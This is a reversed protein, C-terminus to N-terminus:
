ADGKVIALLRKRRVESVTAAMCTSSRQVATRGQRPTWGASLKLHGAAAGWLSTNRTLGVAATVQVATRWRQSLLDVGEAQEQTTRASKNQCLDARSPSVPSLGLLLRIFDAGKGRGGGKEM